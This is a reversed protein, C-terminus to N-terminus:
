PDFGNAFIVDSVSTAPSWFGDYVRLSAGTLVHTAPQGVTGSLRFAGGGLTAGGDAIVAGDLRLTGGTEASAAAVLAAFLVAGFVGICLRSRDM